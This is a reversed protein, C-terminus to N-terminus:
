SVKALIRTSLEATLSATGVESDVEFVATMVDSFKFKRMAKSDIPIRAMTMPSAAGEAASMDRPTKCHGTEYVMWGDWVVDTLPSPIAIVGIGAANETVVGIGLAWRFGELASLTGGTLYVLLEGRTRIITLGEGAAQQATGFVAAGNASFSVTGFPGGFWSTQRRTSSRQHTFTGRSRPM